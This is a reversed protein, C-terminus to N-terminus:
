MVPGLSAGLSLPKKKAEIIWYYADNVVFRNPHDLDAWARLLFAAVLQREGTVEQTFYRPDARLESM